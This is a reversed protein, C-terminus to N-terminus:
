AEEGLCELSVRALHVSFPNDFHLTSMFFKVGSEVRDADVLLAAKFTLRGVIKFVAPHLDDLVKTFNYLFGMLVSPM